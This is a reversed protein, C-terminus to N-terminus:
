MGFAKEKSVKDSEAGVVEILEEANKNKEKLVIEQEALTVQLLLNLSINSINSRIFLNYYNFTLAVSLVM